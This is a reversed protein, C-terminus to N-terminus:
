DESDPMDPEYSDIERQVQEDICASVITAVEAALQQLYLKAKAAREAHPTDAYHLAAVFAQMDSFIWDTVRHGIDGVLTKYEQHAWITKEGGFLQEYLSEARAERADADADSADAAWDYLNEVHGM